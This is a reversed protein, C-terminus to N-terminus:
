RNVINLIEEGYKEVKNIGFGKIDQLEEKTKPKKRLITELEENNFIMYEKFGEENAINFRYNKLLEFTESDYNIMKWNCKASKGNVRNMPFEMINNKVKKKNIENNFQDKHSVEQLEIIETKENSITKRTDYDVFEEDINEEKSITEEKHSNRENDNSVEKITIINDTKEQKIFDEETLEYKDKCDFEAPKNNELLYNAIAYMNKELFDKGKHSEIESKLLYGLQDHKYINNKIEEPCKNKNIISKPNAIVIISKVNPNKSLEEKVLIDKLINVHRQNQAIPSYMGEKKIFKGSKNKIVRIFDGDNTIQIDGTMKKTELVLISKKTIVIFDYQAVLGNYELRIDHLCLIPLFSNKLEFYVNREGDIGQKLLMIDKEILSKKDSYVNNSLEILDDIKSNVKNFDKFFIPHDITTKGNKIRYLFKNMLLM